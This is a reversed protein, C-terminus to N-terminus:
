NTPWRNHLWIWQDPYERVWAEVINNINDILIQVDKDSDGTNIVKMPPSVLVKFKCAKTRVVRVPLIPCQYKLSLRAIAPATMASMGFFNSKIGDNMKQDVLIGIREKNKLRKIIERSGSQGKPIASLLYKKRLKQILDGLGPNNGRRYVISVPYLLDSFLRPGIEWNALHGTFYINGKQTGAAEHIHEVGELTAISKIKEKDMNAIHPFEAFTRGLNDWMGSVINEIQSKDLEPMAKSLNNRAVDSRRLGPGIKRAFFGGLDSAITVPLIRLPVYLCKVLM